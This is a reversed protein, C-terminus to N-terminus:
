PSSVAKFLTNRNALTGGEPFSAEWCPGGPIQLQATLPLGLPWIPESLNTGEGAVMVHGAADPKKRTTVLVLGDPRGNRKRYTFGGANETWCSRDGCNLGAPARARFALTGDAQYLCFGVTGGLQPDQLDPVADSQTTVFKWVLRDRSSGLRNHVILKTADPIV